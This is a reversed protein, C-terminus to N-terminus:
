KKKELLLRCVLDLVTEHARLHTYSVTNFTKSPAGFVIGVQAAEQSVTTFPIHRNGFLPMDAHIEDSIVTVNYKYCIRALDALTEKNWMCGGPNHPNSLILLPCRRRKLVDELHNLDM